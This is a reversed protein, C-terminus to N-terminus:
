AGDKFRLGAIRYTFGLIVFFFLANVPIQLNFDLFSYLLTAVVSSIGGMTVYVAYSSRRGLWEKLVSVFFYIFFASIAAFGLIGMESLLQFCDNHAHIFLSQVPTTKYVSSISGFTGLGTGFLPFDKWISLIDWWSYGHGFVSYEGKNFFTSFRSIINRSELVFVFIILAVFSSIWLLVSRSGIVGKVRSLILFVLLGLIFIIVGGRSFSLFLALCMIGLCFLYIIRRSLPMNVLSYGLVIPIIMNIYGSFNNRNIFFGFTNSMSFGPNFWYLRDLSTYKQVIGYFSIVVGLIVISNIFLELERKTEFIHMVVLFLGIYSFLGFIGQITSNPNISLPLFNSLLLSENFKQLGPSIFKLLKVPLPLLQFIALFLFIILFITLPTKIVAITRRRAMDIVWLFFLGVSAIMLWAQVSRSVGGYFLCSSFIIFILASLLFM